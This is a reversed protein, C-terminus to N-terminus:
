RELEALATELGVREVDLNILLRRIRVIEQEIADRRV